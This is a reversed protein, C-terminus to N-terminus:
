MPSAVAKAVYEGQAPNKSADILGSDFSAANTEFTTLPYLFVPTLGKGLYGLRDAAAESLDLLRHLRLNPGRDTITVVVSEGNEVNVVRITTGLPFYWSAATFKHRDFRQGNAMKRGQRDAGYWSATGIYQTTAKKAKGKVKARQSVASTPSIWLLSAVVAFVALRLKTQM